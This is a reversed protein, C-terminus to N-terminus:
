ASGCVITARRMETTGLEAGIRRRADLVSPPIEHDLERAARREAIDLFSIFNAFYVLGAGNLRPRRRTITPCSREGTFVDIDDPEPDFFAGRTRAVRCLMLSDPQTALEPIESFDMNAPISMSLKSPGGAQYIFVNSSRVWFGSANALCHKGDLYVQGYHSLDTTFNMTENEGHAALPHDPTFNVELFFFTAYLRSGADDQILSTPTKGVTQIQRWRDNGIAKFLASESLNNRGLHPMGLDFTFESTMQAGARAAPATRGRAEAGHHRRRSEHLPRLRRLRRAHASNGRRRRRASRAGRRRDRPPRREHPTEMRSTWGREADPLVKELRDAHQPRSASPTPSFASAHTVIVPTVGLSRLTKVLTAVDDRFRRVNETPLTDMVQFEAASSEIERARLRTQISWPIVSKLLPKVRDGVRLEFRQPPPAAPPAQSTPPKMSADVYPLWIYDAPTPYVLAVRPHVAAVIQAARTNATYASEGPYAANIVQFEDKGVRSNLKEELQRPYERGDSEYLGFTESAGFCVINVRGPM